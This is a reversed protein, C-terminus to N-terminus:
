QKRSKLKRQYVKKNLMLKKKKTRVVSYSCLLVSIEKPATDKNSNSMKYLYWLGATAVVAGAAICILKSYSQM